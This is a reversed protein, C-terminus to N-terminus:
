KIELASHIHIVAYDYPGHPERRAGFTVSISDEPKADMELVVISSYIPVEQLFTDGKKMFVTYRGDGHFKLLEAFITSNSHDAEKEAVDRAERMEKCKQIVEQPYELHGIFTHNTTKESFAPPTPDGVFSTSDHAVRGCGICALLVFVVTVVVSFLRQM